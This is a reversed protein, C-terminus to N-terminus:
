GTFAPTAEVASAPAPTVAPAATTAPSRDQNQDPTTTTTTTTTSESTPPAASVTPRFNNTVTVVARCDPGTSRLDWCSSPTSLITVRGDGPDGVNDSFRALAGDGRAEDVRCSTGTPLGTLLTSQGDGLLVTRTVGVGDCQVQIEYLGIESAASGDVIKRVLLDGTFTLSVTITQGAPAPASHFGTADVLGRQPEPTSGDARTAVSTTYDVQAGDVGAAKVSCRDETGLGPVDRATVSRGPGAKVRIVLPTRATGDASRCTVTAEYDSGPRTEVGVTVLRVTVAATGADGDAAGATRTSAVVAGGGGALLVALLGVRGRVRAGVKQVGRM